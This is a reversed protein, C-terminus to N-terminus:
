EFASYTLNIASDAFSTFRLVPEFSNVAGSVSTQIKHAVELTVKEVKDLDSAYAVGLCVSVGSELNPFYFNTIQATAM